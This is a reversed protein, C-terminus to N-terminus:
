RGAPAAQMLRSWFERDFQFNNGPDAGLRTVVLQLSPVVYVKRGMAGLAAVLDVPAGPILSEHKAGGATMGSKGNLWWLLGYSGNLSQSSGLMRDLYTPNQLLDRDRWSARNLILLGFRALDRATTVFGIANAADNGAAWPRPAWTSNTMGTPGTLWRETLTAIDEGTAKELIPIMRSYAGTNYRWAQGAPEQYVLSDNLGSTMTMLHRVTIRAEAARDAKSWGQGLYRDVPADLSLQTRGEAIGALLAVVSKQTSAVDELPQGDATRGQQTRAFGAPGTVEWYREALVRGDLLIVVGTSQHAGAYDIADSIRSANWGASEPTVREWSADTDPFYLPGAAHTVSVSLAALGVIALTRM